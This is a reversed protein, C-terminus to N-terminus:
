KFNREYDWTKIPIYMVPIKVVSFNKDKFTGNIMMECIRKDSNCQISSSKYVIFENNETVIWWYDTLIEFLGSCPNSFNSIPYFTLDQM